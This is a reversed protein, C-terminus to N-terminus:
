WDAAMANWAFTVRREPSMAFLPLEAYEGIHVGMRAAIGAFSSRGALVVHHKRHDPMRRENDRVERM